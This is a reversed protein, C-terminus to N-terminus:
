QLHLYMLVWGWGERIADNSHRSKPNQKNVTPFASTNCIGDSNTEKRNWAWPRWVSLNWDAATPINIGLSWCISEVPADKGDRPRNDFLKWCGVEWCSAKGGEGGSCMCFVVGWKGWGWLHHWWTDKKMEDVLGWTWLLCETSRRKFMRGGAGGGHPKSSKIWM